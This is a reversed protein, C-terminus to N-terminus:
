VASFDTATQEAAAQGRDAIVVLAGSRLFAECMARGVGRAGGTVLATKGILSFATLPNSEHDNM